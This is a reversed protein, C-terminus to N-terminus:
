ASCGIELVIEIFITVEEFWVVDDGSNVEFAACVGAGECDVM